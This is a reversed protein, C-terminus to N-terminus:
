PLLCALSLLWTLPLQWNWSTMDLLLLTVSCCWRQQAVLCMARGQTDSIGCCRTGTVGAACFIDNALVDLKKQEDGSANTDGAAGLRGAM